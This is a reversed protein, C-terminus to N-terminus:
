LICERIVIAAFCHGVLAWEYKASEIRAAEGLANRYSRDALKYVETLFIELNGPPYLLANKGHHLVTSVDGLDAAVIAKGSAMYDFIKSPFSIETVKDLNRPLVLIDAASM